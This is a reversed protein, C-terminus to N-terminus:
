KITYKNLKSLSDNQHFEILNDEFDRVFFQLINDTNGRKIEINNNSNKFIKAVDKIDKVELCLHRYINQNKKNIKETKFFEIFTGNGCHIFYGYLEKNINLFKHAIELGLLDVYFEKVKALDKSSLCLHSLNKIKM